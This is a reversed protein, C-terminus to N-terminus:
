KGDERERRHYLRKVGLVLGPPVMGAAAPRLVYLWGFPLLLGMEQFSRYRLGMEGLRHRWRRRRYSDRDERYYLLEEQLNCGRIGLKWLRLFLEYDECRLTERSALYGGAQLLVGRRMLVSPHIYPSYKLFDRRGPHEPMRRVGWVGNDDVLRAGSGVFPVEPHAELFAHQVALREPVCIDDDDMRALYEGRAVGICANLSHALGHNLPNHLLRVRGDQAAYQRLQGLVAADSGDSYIIFEFDSFTQGLVSSVSEKLRRPDRQNYVGMIVSIEPKEKEGQVRGGGQGGNEERGRGRAERQGGM